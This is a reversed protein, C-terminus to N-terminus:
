WGQPPPSGRSRPAPQNCTTLQLTDPGKPQIAKTGGGVSGGTTQSPRPQGDVARAVTAGHTPGGCGRSRRGVSRVPPNYLVGYAAPAAVTNKSPRTRVGVPPRSRPGRRARQPLRRGGTYLHGSDDTSLHDGSSTLSGMASTTAEAPSVMLAVQRRTGSEKAKIAENDGGTPPRPALVEKCHRVGQPPRRRQYAVRLPPPQRQQHLPPRRRRHPQGFSAELAVRAPAACNM